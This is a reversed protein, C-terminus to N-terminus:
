LDVNRSDFTEPPLVASLIILAPDYGSAYEVLQDHLEPPQSITLDVTMVASTGQESSELLLSGGHQQAVARAIPLGLGIGSDSAGPHQYRSFATALADQEAAGGSDSVRIRLWRGSVAAQLAIERSDGCHAAANAILHLVAYELAQRDVCAIVTKEPLKYNLTIRSDGLMDKARSCLAELTECLDTQRFAGSSPRSAIRDYFQLAGVARLLRFAAHSVSSTWSQIKADEQEELYPLLKGGAGVLEDLAPRLGAAVARLTATDDSSAATLFFLDEEGVRRITADFQSAGIGVPLCATVGDTRERFLPLSKGLLPAIPDGVRLPLRRCADSSWTVTEGDTFFSPVPLAQLVSKLQSVDKEM